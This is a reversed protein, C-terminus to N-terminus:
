VDFGMLIIGDWLGFMELFGHNLRWTLNVKYQRGVPTELSELGGAWISGNFASQALPNWNALTVQRLIAFIKSAKVPVGLKCTLLVHAYTLALSGVLTASCFNNIHLLPYWPHLNYLDKIWLRKNQHLVTIEVAIFKIAAFLWWWQRSWGHKSHGPSRHWYIDNSNVGPDRLTPMRDIAHTWHSPYSISERHISWPSTREVRPWCDVTAAGHQSRNGATGFIEPHKMRNWTACGTVQRLNRDRSPVHKRGVELKVPSDVM